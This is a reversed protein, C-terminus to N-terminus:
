SKANVKPTISKRCQCQSQNHASKVKVTTCQQLYTVFFTPSEFVYELNLASEKKKKKKKFYHDNFCSFPVAMTDLYSPPLDIPNTPRIGSLM